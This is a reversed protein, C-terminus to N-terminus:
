VLPAQRGFREAAPWSRVVKVLQVAPNDPGWLAPFEELVGFGYALYFARTKAYGPDPDSASLTKVQLFEISEDALVREAENLMARGIGRRHHSPVVAMLHVEAARPGHRVITTIGVDVGEVSAIVSPHADAATVYDDVAEPIGFWEPLEDLIARCTAGSGGDVTRLEVQM